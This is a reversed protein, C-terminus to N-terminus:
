IERNASEWLRRTVEKKIALHLEEGDTQLARKGERLGPKNDHDENIKQEIVADSILKNLKRMMEELEADLFIGMKAFALEFERIKSEVEGHRYRKLLKVFEEQRDEADLIERKQWEAFPHGDLYELLADDDLSKIVPYSQMSSTYSLAWLRAEVLKGWLDPLVEFERDHLRTLRDFTANIRHKLRELEHAQESRYEEMARSFKNEIWAKGLWKFAAWSIGVVASVSLGVAGFLAIAPQIHLWFQQISSM